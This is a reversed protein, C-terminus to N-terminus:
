NTVPLYYPLCILGAATDTGSDLTFTISKETSEHGHKEATGTDGVVDAGALFTQLLAGITTSAAFTESAGVSMTNKATELGTADLAIGDMFGNADGSDTSDTGVDIVQGADATGIIVHPNPLWYANAPEDFGTDEETAAATTADDIDFPIRLVQYAENRDILVVHDQGTSLNARFSQGGPTLGYIECATIGDIYFEAAGNSLARPNALANGDADELDLKNYAGATASIVQIAGGADTIRDGTEADYLHLHFKNAM